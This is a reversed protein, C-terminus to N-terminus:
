FVECAMDTLLSAAKAKSDCDRFIAFVSSGSGSVQTALAGKELMSRELAGILPFKRRVAHALDNRLNAAVRAPDGSKLADVADELKRGDAKAANWDLNRYAWAASIPFRPFAVLIHPKPFEFGLPTLVDGIGKATSPKPNLFFAVDAGLKAALTRLAEAELAEFRSNLLLLTAAADSSGGGLGAAIPIRKKLKISLKAEVRAAECYAKAAKVCLNSGEKALAESDCEFEIGPPADFRIAVEDKPGDPLPAFLTSLLHYGDPRKGDVALFLNIKCPTALSLSDM